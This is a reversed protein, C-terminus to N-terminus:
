KEIRPQYRVDPFQIDFFDQQQGFAGLRVKDCHNFAKADPDQCETM